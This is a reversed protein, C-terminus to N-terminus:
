TRAVVNEPERGAALAAIQRRLLEVLRPATANTFGGVHPTLIVGPADWLPHDGPLPEPDTVDLGARLRGSAVEAVLADTDVVKGRGVNVLMAGDPMAALFARDVLRTTQPTLPLVVVVADVTPLLGAVDDVAHVQVDGETRASRGVMLVDVEFAELRRRIANGISGAGLVLVRRDALSARHVPEWRHSAMARVADDIGRQSALLLGVALEATGADHVGRGNCLVVGSPARSVAHEYGASQLQVVRLRPLDHLLGFAGHRVAGPLVVMEVDRALPGPLAADLSWLALRIGDPATGLRELVDPSPVTVTRARPAM